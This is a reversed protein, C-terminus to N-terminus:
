LKLLRSAGREASVIWPCIRRVVPIFIIRMELCLGGFGVGMFSYYVLWSASGREKEERMGEREREKEREIDM